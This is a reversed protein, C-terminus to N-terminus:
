VWRPIYYVMALGIYGFALGVLKEAISHFYINTMFLMFWWLGILPITITHPTQVFLHMLLAPKSESSSQWSESFRCLQGKLASWSVWFPLAESFLYLSSHILLFVHGSPDHGGEWSGKLKRCMYSTIARSEYQVQSELETYLGSTGFSPVQKFLQDHAISTCKGGTWVFVKDMLPLGFCWQTFLVWWVTAIVYNLIARKLVSIRQQKTLIKPHKNGYILFSYFLIIILTTWGWGKKVFVQNFLNRKNNYYNYVEENQAVLHVLKGLFFNVIFSSVFIVEGISLRIKKTICGSFDSLKQLHKDYIESNSLKLKSM